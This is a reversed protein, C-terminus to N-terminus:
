CPILTGFRLNTFNTVEIASTGALFIVLYVLCAQPITEYIMPISGLFWRHQVLRLSRHISMMVERTTTALILNLVFSCIYFYIFEVSLLYASRVFEMVLIAVMEVRFKKLMYNYLSYVNGKSVVGIQIM